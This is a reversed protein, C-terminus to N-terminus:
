MVQDLAASTVRAAEENSMERIVRNFPEVTVPGDYRIKRLANMFGDIDIVGTAGVMERQNDIQKDIDLGSSADNVHVYVIEAPDLFAVDRVSGHSTYLHWADLLLGVNGTRAGIAAGFARMGDMTHVFDFQHPVRLTAPGVFELGLRMGADQLIEAVRQLRPLTLDWHQRFTLRDSFPLVWTTCRMSGLAAGLAVQEAFAPLSDEFEADSDAERWRASVGIAGPMLGTSAFWDKAAQLSTSRALGGLYGLDLDIGPFHFRRALACAHDFSVNAHGLAGLNLNKYM